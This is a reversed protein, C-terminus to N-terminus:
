IPILSLTRGRPHTHPAFFSKAQGRPWSVFAAGEWEVRYPAPQFKRLKLMRVEECLNWIFTLMSCRCLINLEFEQKTAIHQM